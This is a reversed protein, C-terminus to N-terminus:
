EWGGVRRGLGFYARDQCVARKGVNPTTFFLMGIHRAHVTSWCDGGRGPITAAAFRGETTRVNYQAGPTLCIRIFVYQDGLVPLFWEKM